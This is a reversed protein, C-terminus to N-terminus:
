SFFRCPSACPDSDSIGERMYSERYWRASRSPKRPGWDFNKSASSLDFLAVKRVTTKNSIITGVFSM